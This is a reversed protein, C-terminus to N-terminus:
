LISYVKSAQQTTHSQQQSMYNESIIIINDHVKMHSNLQKTRSGSRFYRQKVNSNCNCLNKQPNYSM